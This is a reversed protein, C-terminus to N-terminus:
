SPPQDGAERKRQNAESEEGQLLRWLSCTTGAEARGEWCGGQGGGEVEDGRGGLFGAERRRGRFVSRRGPAAPSYSIHEGRPELSARPRPPTPPPLSAILRTNETTPQCNLHIHRLQTRSRLFLRCTPFRRWRPTPHARKPLHATQGPGRVPDATFSQATRGDGRGQSGSRKEKHGREAMAGLGAPGRGPGM